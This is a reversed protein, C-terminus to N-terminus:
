VSSHPRFALCLDTFASLCEEGEARSTQLLSLTSTSLIPAVSQAQAGRECFNKKLTAGFGRGASVCSKSYDAHGVKSLWVYLLNTETFM